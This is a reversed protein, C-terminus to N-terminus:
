VNIYSTIKKNKMMKKMSNFNKLLSNVEQITRGSGLAIRKKRSGDIIGPNSREHNTMSNIVAEMWIMQSNDINKIAGKKIGPISKIIDSLPGLKKMQNMQNKFDHFNFQNSLMKDKLKEAEEQDINDKIKDVFSVIDSMGLIQKTLKKPNYSDLNKIGEGDGIFIIPKKTTYSVSLAAGGRADSDVKSLIIGSIDVKDNFSICSNVADQGSMSDVVYFIEDPDVSKNIDEIEDMMASDIHTRGATDIIVIKKSSHAIALGNEIIQKSSTSDDSYFDVGVQSSLKELQSKAALRNIDAGILMVDKKLTNKIYFALKAATTTKGTGQLGVMLIVKTKSSIPKNSRTNISLFSEIEDHIIKIFQQGPTIGDFVKDGKVRLTISNIIEKVVRYNVDAELLARRIDRITDSINSETIKGHGKLTKFINSFRKKINNYM